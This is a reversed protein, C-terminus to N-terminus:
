LDVTRHRLRRCFFDRSHGGPQDFQRAPHRDGAAARGDTDCRQENSRRLPEHRFSVSQRSPNVVSRIPDDGTRLTGSEHFTTGLGDPKINAAPTYGTAPSAGFLNAALFDIGQNMLGM